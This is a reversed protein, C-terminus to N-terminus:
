LTEMSSPSHPGTGHSRDRAALARSVGRQRTAAAPEGAPGLSYALLALLVLFAPGALLVGGPMNGLVNPSTSAIARPAASSPPAAGETGTGTSTPTSLGGVPIDSSGFAPVDFSGSGSDFSGSGSDSPSTPVGGSGDDSTAAQYELNVVVAGAGSTAFVTQFSDPSDVEEVLVIGDPAITGSPDTWAQGIALLDFTWTGDAGRTGPAKALTCDYAPKADWTGNEGGVWFATIPCAVIKAAASNINAAQDAQTAEKIALTFATVTDGTAADPLIGIATIKNPDGNAASVALTGKPVGPPAPVTINAAPTSTASNQANWWGVKDVSAGTASIGDGPDATAVGMLLVAAVAATAAAVVARGAPTRLRRRM